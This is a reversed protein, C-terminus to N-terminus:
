GNAKRKLGIEIRKLLLKEEEPYNGVEFLRAAQIPLQWAIVEGKKGPYLHLYQSLYVSHMIARMANIVAKTLFPTGPPLGGTLFLLSTRAVDGFPHGRTGTMWDIIVPGHPTLIINDPHFDGHCVVKGQPLRALMKLIAGKEVEGLTGAREIGRRIQEHQTYAAPPIICTHMHAHLEAMQRAFLGLKWPKAELSKLMSIGEIREFVIGFRGDTEVIQEADPVPLGASAAARTIAFEMEIAPYPMWSQYLKLVRDSGWAFVDATRGQGIFPGIEM